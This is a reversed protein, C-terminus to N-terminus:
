RDQYAELEMAKWEKASPAPIGLRTCHIIITSENIRDDAPPCHIYSKTQIRPNIFTTVRDKYDNIDAVQCGRKQLFKFFKARSYIM